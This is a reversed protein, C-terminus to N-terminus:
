RSYLDTVAVGSPQDTIVVVFITQDFGDGGGTESGLCFM